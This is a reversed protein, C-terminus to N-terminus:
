KRKRRGTTAKGKECIGLATDLETKHRKEHLSNEKEFKKDHRKEEKKYKNLINKKQKKM